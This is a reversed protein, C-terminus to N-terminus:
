NVNQCNSALYTTVCLVSVTRIRKVKTRRSFSEKFYIKVLIASVNSNVQFNTASPYYANATAAGNGPNPVALGLFPNRESGDNLHQLVSSLVSQGYTVYGEKSTPDLSTPLSARRNLDDIQSWFVTFSKKGNVSM